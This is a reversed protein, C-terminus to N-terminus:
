TEIGSKRSARAKSSVLKRVEIFIFDMLNIRYHAREQQDPCLGHLLYAQQVFREVHISFIQIPAVPRACCAPLHNIVGMGPDNM